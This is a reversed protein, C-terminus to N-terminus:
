SSAAVLQNFSNREVENYIEDEAYTIHRIAKCIQQARSFVCGYIYFDETNRESDSEPANPVESSYIKNNIYFSKNLNESVQDFISDHSSIYDDLYDIDERAVIGSGREGDIILQACEIIIDDHSNNVLYGDELADILADLVDDESNSVVLNYFLYMQEYDKKIKENLQWDSVVLDIFMPMRKGNDNKVFGIKDVLNIFSKYVTKIYKFAEQWEKVDKNQKYLENIKNLKNTVRGAIEDDVFSHLNQYHYYLNTYDSLFLDADDHKFYLDENYYYEEVESIYHYPGGDLSETHFLLDLWVFYGIIDLDEIVKYSNFLKDHLDQLETNGLCVIPNGYGNVHSHVYNCCVMETTPSLNYAVLEYIKYIHLEDEHKTLRGKVQFVFNDLVIYEEKENTVTINHYLVTAVFGENINYTESVDYEAYDPLLTSLETKLQEVTM